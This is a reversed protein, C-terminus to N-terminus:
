QVQEKSAALLRNAEYDAWDLYNATQPFQQQTLSVQAGQFYGEMKAASASLEGRLAGTRTLAEAASRAASVRAATKETRQCLQEFDSPAVTLSPPAGQPSAAQFPSSPFQGIPPHFPANSTSRDSRASFQRLISDNFYELNRIVLVVIVAAPILILALFIWNYLEGQEPALAGLLPEYGSYAVVGALAVGCLTVITALETLHPRRTRIVDSAM